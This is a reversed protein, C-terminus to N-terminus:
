NPYSYAGATYPAVRKAGFIDLTPAGTATGAGIAQAGKKLMVNYTLTSPNFNVFESKAGGSDIINGNAYTGPNGLLQAVGNVFWTIRPGASFMVVNHDAVVGSGRTDVDLQSALNNRVVTNSSSAGVSVDALCGPTSVLGDDALTNNAILSNHISIFHIGWCASTVVVNNTVTMNTWDSNFADIGQLYTPFSLEPDTQRTVLNSDILINQFHNLAVGPTTVGIVGQMADEHNGDGIDLNDHLHNHTIALNSTAYDIGDDGFHDIQNNSFLLQSALLGAGTKVNSIHSGTLSICKTYAGGATSQAFFGSRANAVWQGKSWAEANDQSSISINELVINSTPFAAGGDKIHVLANGSRAASQLSQVKLGNFMWNNTAAVLLSTLVPTQGPAAQVTIFASNAIEAGNTNIWIDGYNGSMLLLEDGPAVPGAKPGPAVVAPKGAAPVWRYPATTLLPFTYGPQTQVLAQLSNWPAAQSGNGGAAPTKGHVPDFYWVHRFTSPPSACGSYVQAARVPVAFAFLLIVAYGLTKMSSGGNGLGNHRTYYVLLDIDDM